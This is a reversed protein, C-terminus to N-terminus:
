NKFHKIFFFLNHLNINRSRSQKTITIDGSIGDYIKPHQLPYSITTRIKAYYFAEEASVCKDNNTDAEGFEDDFNLAKSLYYTFLGNKLEESGVSTELSGCASLIMRGSKSLPNILDTFSGSMCSDFIIVVKESELKSFADDLEKSSIEYNSPDGGEIINAACIHGYYGHGSFYFLVTDDADENLDLWGEIKNLINTKSAELLGTLCKIQATNWGHKILANKMDLADYTTYPCSAIGVGVILAWKNSIGDGKPKSEDKTKIKENKDKTIISASTTSSVLILM